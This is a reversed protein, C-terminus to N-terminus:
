DLDWDIDSISPDARINVARTREENSPVQHRAREMAAIGDLSAISTAEEFANDIDGYGPDTSPLTEPFRDRPAPGTQDYARPDIDQMRTPEDHFSPKPPGSAPPLPPPAIARLQQEGRLVTLLDDDVQRTPEDSFPPPVPRRSPQARPPPPPPAPAMVAAPAVPRSAVDRRAAQAAQQGSPKKNLKAQELGVVLAPKAPVDPRLMMPAPAPAPAPAPSDDFDIEYDRSPMGGIYVGSDEDAIRGGEDRLMRLIRTREGASLQDRRGHGTHMHHVTSQNPGPPGV